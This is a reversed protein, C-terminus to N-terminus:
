DGAVVAVAGVRSQAEYERIAPEREEDLAYAERVAEDIEVHIERLRVIDDDQVVEDHVLNYLATLGIRRREMVSVGSRTWSM